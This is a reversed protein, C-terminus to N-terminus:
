RLEIWQQVANGGTLTLAYTFRNPVPVTLLQGVDSTNNNVLYGFTTGNLNFSGGGGNAIFVSIMVTIPKGSTNTYTTGASRAPASPTQGYGLGTSGEFQLWTNGNIFILGVSQGYSLVISTTGQQGLAYFTDTGARTLTCDGVGLNTLNIVVGNTAGTPMNVTTASGSLMYNPRYYDASTLTANAGYAGPTAAKIAPGYGWSPVSAGGYLIQTAAGAALFATAGAGTQYHLQGALGGAMNTATTATTATTASTANGAFTSGANGFTNVGSFTNASALGPYDTGPSAAATGGSGDGKLVATGVTSPCANGNTQNQIWTLLSMVVTADALQGNVLTTPYANIISM